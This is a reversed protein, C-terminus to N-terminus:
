GYSPQFFAAKNVHCNQKKIIINQLLESTGKVTSDNTCELSPLTPTRMYTGLYLVYFGALIFTVVLLPLKYFQHATSQVKRVM